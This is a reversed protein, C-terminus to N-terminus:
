IIRTKLQLSVLLFETLPENGGGGATFARFQEMMM